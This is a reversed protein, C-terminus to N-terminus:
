ASKEPIDAFPEVKKKEKTPKKQDAPPTDADILASIRENFGALDDLQYKRPIESILKIIGENLLIAQFFGANNASTSKFAPLLTGSTIQESNLLPIIESLAVPKKSFLGGGSNGSISIYVSKDPSCTILYDLTSKGSVSPCSASKLIHLEETAPKETSESM